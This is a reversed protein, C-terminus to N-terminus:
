FFGWIFKILELFFWNPPSAIEDNHPLQAWVHCQRAVSPALLDWGQPIIFWESVVAWLHYNSPFINVDPEIPFLVKSFGASELQSFCCTNWWFGPELVFSVIGVKETSHISKNLFLVFCSKSLRTKQHRKPKAISWSRCRWIYSIFLVFILLYIHCIFLPIIMTSSFWKLFGWLSLGIQGLIWM